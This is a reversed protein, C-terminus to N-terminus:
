IYNELEVILNVQNLNLNNLDYIKKIIKTRKDNYVNNQSIKSKAKNFYYQNILYTAFNLYEINKKLKNLRFLKKINDILKDNLNIKDEMIINNYKIYNGPTLSSNSLDIKEEIKFDKLLKQIINIKELKNLFFLTEISRSKLTDLINNNQNNILVFHNIEIPEEITKLLANVCNNNLYEVDDFIIFRYMNNISSKQIDTRLKRIDDIKVKNNSCNYYFVNSNNNEQINNFIKNEIKVSQSNRDYNKKDFYYSMLHYSLTFKGQGKKGSFMLVKPLKDNDILTMFNSLYKGLGYLNKSPLYNDTKTIM